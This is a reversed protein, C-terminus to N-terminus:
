SPVKLDWGRLWFRVGIKICDTDFPHGTEKQTFGQLVIKKMYKKAFYARRLHLNM